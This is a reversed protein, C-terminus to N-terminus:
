IVTTALVSFLSSTEYIISMCHNYHYRDNDADLAIYEGNGINTCMLPRMEIGPVNTARNPDSKM